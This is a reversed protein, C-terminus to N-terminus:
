LGHGRGVRVEQRDKDNSIVISAFEGRKPDAFSPLIKLLQDSLTPSNLVYYLYNHHHLLNKLEEIRKIDEM